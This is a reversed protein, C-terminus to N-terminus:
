LAAFRWLVEKCDKNLKSVNKGKLEFVRLASLTHKFHEFNDVFVVTFSRGQAAHLRNTTYVNLQGFLDKPIIDKATYCFFNESYLFSHMRNFDDIKSRDGFLFTTEYRNIHKELLYIDKVLMLQFDFGAKQFKTQFEEIQVLTSDGHPLQPM